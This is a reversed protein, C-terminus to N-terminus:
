WFFCFGSCGFSTGWFWHFIMLKFRTPSRGAEFSYAPIITTTSLNEFIAHYIVIVIFMVDLPTALVRHSCTNLSVSMEWFTILM